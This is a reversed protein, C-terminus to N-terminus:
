LEDDSESLYHEIKIKSRTTGKERRLFPLERKPPLIVEKAEFPVASVHVLDIRSESDTKNREKPSISQTGEEDSDTETASATPTTKINEDSVDAAADVDVTGMMENGRSDSEDESDNLQSAQRKSVKSPKKSGPSLKTSINDKEHVVDAEPKRLDMINDTSSLTLLKREQDRIKAKKENLLLTFKKLLIEEHQRKLDSMQDLTEKLIKIEENKRRLDSKTKDYEDLLSQRLQITLSCWNFLSIDLEEPLLTIEGLKEKYICANVQSKKEIFYILLKSVIIREIKKQITIILTDSKITAVAQYLGSIERDINHSSAIAADDGLFITSFLHDVVEQQPPAGDKWKVESSKRSKDIKVAYVNEGESGVLTLIQSMDSDWSVHVLVFDYEDGHCPIQIVNEQM